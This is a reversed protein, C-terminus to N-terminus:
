VTEKKKGFGSRSEMVVRSPDDVIRAGKDEPDENEDEFGAKWIAIERIQSADGIALPESPVITLVKKKNEATM